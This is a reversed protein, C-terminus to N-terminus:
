HLINYHTTKLTCGTERDRISGYGRAAPCGGWAPVEEAMRDSDMGANREKKIRAAVQEGM